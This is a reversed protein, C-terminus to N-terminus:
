GDDDGSQSTAPLPNTDIKVTVPMGQRLGQNPNDVIVRLRYVLDTRLQTTEVNKPTFEAQPSIFGVQGQYPKDPRSDTYVHASQGPYIHGLNPETIYTRVWIPDDMALTYVPQGANVISGPERVRTLIVGDSPAHIKTDALATQAQEIRAQATQVRARSTDRNALAEDYLSQSVTGTKVLRANRQFDRETNKLAAQAEALEAKAVALDEEFTDRDLTAVVTNKSVRDGEEFHMEAIRGAVRFALVVDRIDVNGYLTLTNEANNQQLHEYVQWGGVVLLSGIIIGLFLSKKSM